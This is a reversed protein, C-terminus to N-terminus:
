KKNIDNLFNATFGYKKYMCVKSLFMSARKINKMIHGTRKLWSM